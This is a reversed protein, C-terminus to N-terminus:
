LFYFRMRNCFHYHVIQLMIGRPGVLAYIELTISYNHKCFGKLLGKRRESVLINCGYTRILIIPFKQNMRSYILCKAGQTVVGDTLVIFRIPGRIESILLAIRDWSHILLRMVVVQFEFIITTYLKTYSFTIRFITWFKNTVNNSIM